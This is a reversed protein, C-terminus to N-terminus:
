PINPNLKKARSYAKQADEARGLAIYAESLNYYAEAYDPNIELAKKYAKVAENKDLYETGLNNYAEAYGPNIELAKQYSRIAESKNDIASYANGLNNYCEASNPTLLIAKKLADISSDYLKMDYYLAGLNNYVRFQDNNIQLSKEFNVLAEDFRGNDQYALGLNNYAMYAQPYKKVTDSFITISDKWVETRKYTFFGLAALIIGLLSASFIRAAIGHKPKMRYLYFLGTSILFFIGISPLYTYRDAMVSFGVPIFQLVPLITIFAFLFGFAIKRTFKGSLATVCVIISILVASSLCILYYQASQVPYPYIISLNEPVITKYFYMILGYFGALIQRSLIFQEGHGVMLSRGQAFIAIIGFALALAFFPVKELFIRRDFKRKLLYDTTILVLPLTVAMAKSGLSLLFLFISGLYYKFSGKKAYYCYNVLAWLFFFSYLVDKRESVWAVSEVRLPHLGFLLAAILSVSIDNCLLMLLWFVLLCNLCHLLVNTAHYYSPDLKFFHYELLYTLNVVPQYTGHFSSTLLAKINSSSIQRLYVNKTVYVPDDWNIFDNKTAPAFASIVAILIVCVPIILANKNQKADM